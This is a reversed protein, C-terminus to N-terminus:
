IESPHEKVYNEVADMFNAVEKIYAGYTTKFDEEFEAKKNELRNIGATTIWGQYELSAIELTRLAPLLDRFYITAISVATPLPQTQIDPNESFLTTRVKAQLWDSQSIVAALLAELRERRRTRAAERAVLIHGIAPGVAGGIVALVGGILVPLLVTWISAEAAPEM